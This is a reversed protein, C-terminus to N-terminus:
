TLYTEAWKQVARTLNDPATELAEPLAIDDPSVAMVSHIWRQQWDDPKLAVRGAFVAVRTAYAQATRLIGDIVKGGLSQGDFCGEGTLVWDAQQVDHIFGSLAIVTDIGSGLHANLFAVAGAALGGAAGGRPLGHLTITLDEQVHQAMNTLGVELLVVDSPSAGKQPAFVRAAGHYGLLPNDVDCLVEVPVQCPNQPRGIKAVRMLNEGIPELAQDRHDLFTWGLASAMGMGMDVTASGGVTLLIREAGQDLAAQILQGTGLTTTKMPNRQEPALHELGSAQAMEVIATRTQALWVFGAEVAMEPLPGTVRQSVWQGNLRDALIQATGEGGDAMPRSVVAAGPSAALIGAAMAQCAELASLSDKFSDPALLVNM